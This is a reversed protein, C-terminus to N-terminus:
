TVPHHIYCAIPYVVGGVEGELLDSVMQKAMITVSMMKILM